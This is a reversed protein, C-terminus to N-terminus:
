LGRRQACQVSGRETTLEAEDPQRDPLNDMICVGFNSLVGMM